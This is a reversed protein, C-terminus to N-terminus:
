AAQLRISCGPPSSESCMCDGTVGGRANLRMKLETRDANETEDNFYFGLWPEVVTDIYLCDIERCLKMIDLSGTDVSLNVCFGQGEGETLLPTLFERYNDQTVAGQIFKVGHKEAIHANSNDPDIIVMRSKDFDIHRELLVWVLGVGRVNSALREGNWEVIGLHHLDHGQQLPIKGASRNGRCEM